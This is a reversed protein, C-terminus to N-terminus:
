AVFGKLTDFRNFTYALGTGFRNLRKVAARLAAGEVTNTVGEVEFELPGLMPASLDDSRFARYKLLPKENFTDASYIADIEAPLTEGLDGFQLTAVQDLTVDKEPRRFEVPYYEYAQGGATLGNPNNRVFYYTQTFDTHSLEFTDYCIVSSSANLFFATYDTV